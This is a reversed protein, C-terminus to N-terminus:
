SYTLRVHLTKWRKRIEGLEIREKEGGGYDCGSFALMDPEFRLHLAIFHKSKMRMGWGVLKNSLRYDFKSLRVAGTRQQDLGGSTDIM